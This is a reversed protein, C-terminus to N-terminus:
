ADLAPDGRVIFAKVALCQLWRNGRITKLLLPVRLVAVCFRSSYNIAGDANHV